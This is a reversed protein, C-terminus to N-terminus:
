RVWGHAMSDSWKDLRYPVFYPVTWTPIEIRRFVKGDKLSVQDNM